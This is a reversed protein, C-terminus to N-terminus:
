KKQADVGAQFATALDDRILKRGAALAFRECADLVTGYPATAYLRKMEAKYAIVREWDLREAETTYEITLTPM